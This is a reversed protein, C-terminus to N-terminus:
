SGLGGTTPVPVLTVRDEDDVAHILRPVVDGEVLLQVGTTSSSGLAGRRTARDGVAVDTAIRVPEAYGRAGDQRHEAVWVDVLMGTQLGDAIEPDIPVTVPRVTVQSRDGVASRPVLEGAMVPRLVVLGPRLQGDAPLYASPGGTVRAGLVTLDGGGLAQGPVLAHAAAYTPRTRDAASVVLAGAVVSLLVLAVGILLRIDHWSPQRLRHATPAAV